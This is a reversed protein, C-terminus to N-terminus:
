RRAAAATAAHTRRPAAHPRAAALATRVKFGRYVLGKQHLQSFVWWVSEMYSPYMTKYDNEFDIWRGVRTVTKQWEASYRMVIARCAQNYKDIGM